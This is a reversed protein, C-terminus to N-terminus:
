FGEKIEVTLEIEVPSNLPLSICGVAARAHRGSAGFIEGLLESAGNVVAPQDHFGPASAVYGTVKVIQNVGELSKLESKIIALANLCATRAARYGEDISVAEGLRGVVSLMGDVLPLAGSLYLLGGSRVAPVYAGVPHPPSPLVIGLEFLKKEISM